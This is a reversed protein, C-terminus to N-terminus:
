EVREEGQLAVGLSEDDGARLGDVQVGAVTIERDRRERGVGVEGDVGVAEAGVREDLGRHGM